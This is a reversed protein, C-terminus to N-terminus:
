SRGVEGSRNVAHNDSTQNLEPETGIHDVISTGDALGGWSKGSWRWLDDIAVREPPGFDTEKTLGGRLYLINNTRMKVTVFGDGIEDNSVVLVERKVDKAIFRSM